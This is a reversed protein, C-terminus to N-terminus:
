PANPFGKAPPITIMILYTDEKFLASHPIDPQITINGGAQVLHYEGSTNVRMTGKYVITIEKEKRHVHMKLISNMPFYAMAVAIYKNKLLGHMIAKHKDGAEIVNEFEMTAHIFGNFEPLKETLVELKEIHSTM